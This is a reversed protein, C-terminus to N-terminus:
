RGSKVANDAQSSRSSVEAIKRKAEEWIVKQAEDKTDHGVTLLNLTNAGGRVTAWAEWEKNILSAFMEIRYGKYNKRIAYVEQSNDLRTLISM